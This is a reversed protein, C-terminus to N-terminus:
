IGNAPAQADRLEHDWKRQEYFTELARQQEPETSLTCVGHLFCLGYKTLCHDTRQPFVNIAYNRAIATCESQIFRRWRDFDKPARNTTAREFSIKGGRTTCLANINAGAVRKPSLKGLAWCYGTVQNSTEFQRFFLTGLESTTKHELVYLVPNFATITDLIGGYEIAELPQNCKECLESDPHNMHGCGWERIEGTEIDVDRHYCLSVTMGLDLTFPVEVQLIQFTEGPYKDAYATMLEEAKNLNRHDDIPHDVPFKERIKNIAAELRSHVSLGTIAGRYWEALGEHIVAGYGLAASKTRPQWNEVLSRKYKTPCNQWNTLAFNDIKM